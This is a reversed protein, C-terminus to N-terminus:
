QIWMPDTDPRSTPEARHPAPAREEEPTPLSEFRTPTRPPHTYLTDAGVDGGGWAISLAVRQTAGYDVAQQSLAYDFSVGQWRIGIGGTIGSLEKNTTSSQDTVAINSPGNFQYSYGLRLALIGYGYEFGAGVTAVDDYVLNQFQVFATSRQFVPQAVGIAIASPLRDSSSVFSQNQGFNDAYFSFTTPRTEDGLVARWNAGVDAALAWNSRYSGITSQVAKVDLGLRVGHGLSSAAGLTVALDGASYTGGTTNGSSNAGPINSVSLNTVAVGLGDVYPALSEPRGAFAIHEYEAGGLLSQYAGIFDYKGRLCYLPHTRM